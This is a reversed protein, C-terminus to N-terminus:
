NIKHLVGIYLQAGFVSLRFWSSTKVKCFQLPLQQYNNQFIHCTRSPSSIESVFSYLTSPLGVVGLNCWRILVLLKGMSCFFISFKPCFKSTSKIIFHRYACNNHCSTRTKKKGYKYLIKILWTNKGTKITTCIAIEHSSKIPEDSFNSTANRM